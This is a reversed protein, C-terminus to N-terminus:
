RCFKEHQQLIYPDTMGAIYDCVVRQLPESSAKECYNGPLAAPDRMWYDFLESVVREADVKEPALESSYYLNQYLFEKARRREENVQPSFAAVRQPHARVADLTAIGASRLRSGTHTILDTVLRNLMGRLAENFKLKDPAGPYAQEAERLFHEFV